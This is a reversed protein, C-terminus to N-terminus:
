GNVVETTWAKYKYGKWSADAKVGFLNNANIALESQGWASEAIAQSVMISPFLDNEKALKQASPYISNLWAKQTDNVGTLSFSPTPFTPSPPLTPTPKDDLVAFASGGVDFVIGKKILKVQIAELRRGM